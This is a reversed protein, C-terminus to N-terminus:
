TELKQILRKLRLHCSKMLHEKKVYKSSIHAYPGMCLIYPTSVGNKGKKGFIKPEPRHPKIRPSQYSPKSIKIM